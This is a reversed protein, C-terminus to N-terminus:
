QHRRRYRLTQRSWNGTVGGTAGDAGFSVAADGLSVATAGVPVPSEARLRRRADWAIDAEICRPVSSTTYGGTYTLEAWGPREGGGLPSGIPTAGLVANGRITLSGAATVPVAPPYVVLGHRRSEVFPLEETREMSELPRDLVEELDAQADALAANVLGSASATDGTITRYRALTVLSM